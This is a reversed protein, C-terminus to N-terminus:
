SRKAGCNGCFLSDAEMAAGCEPCFGSMAPTEEVADKVADATETVPPEYKSGCEPCFQAGESLVTGCNACVPGRAVSAQVAGPNYQMSGTATVSKALNAVITDRMIWIIAAALSFIFAFVPAATMGFVKEPGDMEDEIFVNIKHIVVIWLILWIANLVAVSIGPLKNDVAHFIIVIVSLILTLYFLLMVCILAAKKQGISELADEMDVMRLWFALEDSEEIEHALRIFIPSMSATESASIKCDKVAKYVKTIMKVLRKASIDIDYDDLQDQLDEIDDKDMKTVKKVDSLMDKFDEREDKDSIKMAGAFLLLTAILVLLMCVYKCVMRIDKESM